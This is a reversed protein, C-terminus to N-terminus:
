TGQNENLLKDRLERLFGDLIDDIAGYAMTLADFTIAHHIYFDIGDVEIGIQVFYENEGVRLSLESVPHPMDVFMSVMSAMVYAASLPPHDHRGPVDPVVSYFHDLVTMM